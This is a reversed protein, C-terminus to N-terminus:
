RSVSSLVNADKIVYVCVHSYVQDPNMIYRGNMRMFEYMYFGCLVSGKTQKHCLMVPFQNNLQLM